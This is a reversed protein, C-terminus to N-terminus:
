FRATSRCDWTGARTGRFRRHARPGPALLARGGSRLRIRHRKPHSPVRADSSRALQARRLPYARVVRMVGDRRRRGGVGRRMPRLGQFGRGRLGRELTRARFAPRSVLRARLRAARRGPGSWSARRRTRTGRRAYRPCWSSVRSAPTKSRPCIRAKVGGGVVIPVPSVRELEAIEALTRVIVNGEADMGCDRKTETEHLPGVGFYDVCSADATKVYDIM